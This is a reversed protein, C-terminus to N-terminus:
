VSAFSLLKVVKSFSVCAYFVLRCLRERDLITATTLDGSSSDLRFKDALKSRGEALFRYTLDYYEEDSGVLDRLRSDVAVHGVFTGVARNEDIAYRMSIDQGRAFFGTTVVVSVLVYYYTVTFLLLLQLHGFTILSTMVPFKAIPRDM